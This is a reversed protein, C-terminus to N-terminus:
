KKIASVDRISARSAQLFTNCGILIQHDVTILCGDHIFWITYGLQAPVKLLCYIEAEKPM